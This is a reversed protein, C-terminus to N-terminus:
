QASMSAYLTMRARSIKEENERSYVADQVTLNTLQFDTVSLAAHNLLTRVESAITKCERWGDAKSYVDVQFYVDYHTLCGLDEGIEQGSGIAIRPFIGPTVKDFVSAGAGTNNKLAAVIAVQLALSPSAM